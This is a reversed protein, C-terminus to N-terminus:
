RRGRAKIALRGSRRRAEVSRLALRTMYASLAAKARREREQEPLKGDPDVERDFRALQAETAAQTLDRADWRSHTVSAGIRGLTAFYQSREPDIIKKQPV